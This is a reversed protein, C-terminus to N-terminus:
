DVQCMKMTMDIQDSLKKQELVSQAFFKHDSNSAFKQAYNLLHLNFYKIPTLYHKCPFTYGFKRKFFINQLPLEECKEDFLNHRFKKDDVPALELLNENNIVLSEDAGQRHDSLPNTTSELKNDSELDFDIDNDSM